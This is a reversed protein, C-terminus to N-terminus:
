GDGEGYLDMVDVREVQTTDTLYVLKKIEQGSSRDGQGKYRNAEQFFLILNSQM